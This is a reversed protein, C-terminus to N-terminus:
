LLKDGSARGKGWKRAISRFAGSDAHPNTLVAGGGDLVSTPYRLSRDQPSPRRSRSWLWGFCDPPRSTSGSPRYRVQRIARKSSM